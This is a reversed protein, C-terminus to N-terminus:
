QPYRAAILAPMYVVGKVNLIAGLLYGWLSRPCAPAARHLRFGLMQAIEMGDLDLAM